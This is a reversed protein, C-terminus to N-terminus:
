TSDNASLYQSPFEYTSTWLHFSCTLL